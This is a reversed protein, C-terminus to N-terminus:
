PCAPPKQGTNGSVKRPRVPPSSWLRAFGRAREPGHSSTTTNRRCGRAVISAVPAKRPQPRQRTGAAQRTARKDACVRAAPALRRLYARAPRTTYNPSTRPASATRAAPSHPHPQARIHHLRAITRLKKLNGSGRGGSGRGAPVVPVAPVGPARPAVGAHGHRARACSSVVAMVARGGLRRLRCVWRDRRGAGRARLWHPDVTL